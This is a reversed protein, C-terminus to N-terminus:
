KKKGSTGRPARVDKGEVTERKGAIHTKGAREREVERILARAEELTISGTVAPNLIRRKTV